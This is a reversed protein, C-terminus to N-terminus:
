GSNRAPSALRRPSRQGDAGASLDAAPEAAVGVIGTVGGGGAVPSISPHAGGDSGAAVQGAVGLVSCRAHASSLECLSSPGELTHRQRKSGRPPNPLQLDAATAHLELQTGPRAARVPVKPQLQPATTPAPRATPGPVCGRLGASGAALAALPMAIRTQCVSARALCALGCAAANCTVGRAPQPMHM